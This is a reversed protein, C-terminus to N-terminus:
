LPVTAGILKGTADLAIGWQSAGHEHHVEYVDMGDDSVGLLQISQVAGLQALRVQLKPADKGIAAGLQPNMEQLNPRGASIGAIMRRLMAESAPHPTQSGVRAQLVQRLRDAAAADIRPMATRAGNQHLEAASTEGGADTRFSLQADSDMAFFMTPSEPYMPSATAGPFVVVLHGGERTVTVYEAAEGYQYFGAYRDLVAAPVQVLARQPTVGGPPANSHATSDIAPPAIQAAIAVLIAALGACAAASVTWSKSPKRLMLAIREELFSPSESMAAVIVPPSSQRQGVALLTQGYFRADTGRKLVGADCDVEAARRLRRLQWWM